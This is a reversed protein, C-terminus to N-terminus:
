ENWTIGRMNNTIKSNTKPQNSPSVGWKFQYQSAALQEREIFMKSEKNKKTSVSGFHYLSLRNTRLFRLKGMLELKLFFDWDCINPSNYFVDFGGAAMFYRKQMVFPFIRGGWDTLTTGKEVHDERLKQEEELFASMDFSNVDTGCDRVPFMFMGPGTPEIQNVTYVTEPDSISLELHKDWNEPFVNDDNIIFLWENKAQFVGYNIARQMGQNTPFRMVKIGKYKQVVQESEEVFGDLIVIIENEKTQHNVISSLCLDLYEPNRYSPLIVSYNM